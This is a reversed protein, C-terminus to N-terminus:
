TVVKTEIMFPGGARQIAQEISQLQGTYTEFLEKWQVQKGDVNYSPKPNLTIAKLNAAVNAYAANLDDIVAM